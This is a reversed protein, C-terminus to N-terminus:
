ELTDEMIKALGAYEDMEVVRFEISEALEKAANFEKAKPSRTCGGCVPWKNALQTKSLIFPSKCKHCTARKGLLFEKHRHHNCDPHLCRYINKNTKSREYEHIPHFFKELKSM